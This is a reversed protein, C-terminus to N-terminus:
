STPWFTESATGKPIIMEPLSAIIFTQKEPDEIQLSSKLVFKHRVTRDIYM